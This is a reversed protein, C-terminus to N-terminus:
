RTRSGYRCLVRILARTLAVLEDLSVREDVGHAREIGATGVM